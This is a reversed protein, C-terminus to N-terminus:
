NCSPVTIKLRLQLMKTFGPIRCVIQEDPHCFLLAFCQGLRSFSAALTLRVPWLHSISCGWDIKAIKFPVVEM